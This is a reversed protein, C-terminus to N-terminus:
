SRTRSASPCPACLGQMPLIPAAPSPAPRREEWEEVLVANSVARGSWLGQRVGEQPSATCDAVAWYRSVQGRSVQIRFPSLMRLPIEIVLRQKPLLAAVDAWEDDRRPFPPPLEPIREGDEKYLTMMLMASMWFRDLQVRGASVNDVTCVLLPEPRGEALSLTLRIGDGDYPSPVGQPAPRQLASTARAVTRPGQPGATSPKVGSTCGASAISCLLVLLVSTATDTSDRM